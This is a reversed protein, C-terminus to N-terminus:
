TMELDKIVHAFVKKGGVPDCKCTGSIIDKVWIGKPPWKGGVVFNDPQCCGWVWCVCVYVFEWIQAPRMISGLGKDADEDSDRPASKLASGPARLM